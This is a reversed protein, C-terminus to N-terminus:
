SSDSNQQEGPESLSLVREDGKQNAAVLEVEVTDNRGDRSAFKPGKPGRLEANAEPMETNSMNRSKTALPPSLLSSATSRDEAVSIVHSISSAPINAHREQSQTIPPTFIADFQQKYDRDRLESPTFVADFQRKYEEDRHILPEVVLPESLEEVSGASQAEFSFSVSTSTLGAVESYTPPMSTFESVISGSATHYSSRIGFANDVGRIERERGISMHSAEQRQAQMQAALEAAGNEVELVQQTLADTQQALTQSWERMGQNSNQMQIIQEQMEVLRQDLLQKHHELIAINSTIRREDSQVQKLRRSLAAQQTQTQHISEELQAHRASVVSLRKNADSVQTQLVAVQSEESKLKENLEQNAQQEDDHSSRLTMLKGELEQKHTSTQALRSATEAWQMQLGCSSDETPSLNQISSSAAEDQRMSPPVLTSPLRDPIQGGLLRANILHMAVAFEEKSLRGSDNIDALNWIKSLLLEPLKSQLFFDVPVDGSLYGVRKTDLIDFHREYRQFEEKSVDWQIEALDSTPMSTTRSSGLVQPWNIGHFEPLCVDENLNSLAVPRKAQSLSILKMAVGFEQTTLHGKSNTDALQWIDGLIADPLRSKQFFPVSSEGEVIGEKPLDLLSLLYTYAHQERETPQWSTAKKTKKSWFITTM